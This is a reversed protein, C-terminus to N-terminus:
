FLEFELVLLIVILISYLKTHRITSTSGKKDDALGISTKIGIFSLTSSMGTGTDKIAHLRTSTSLTITETASTTLSDAATTPRAISHVFWTLRISQDGVFLSSGDRAVSMTTGTYVATKGEMDIGTSAGIVISSGPRITKHAFIVPGSGDIAFVLTSGSVATNSLSSSFQGGMSAPLLIVTSTGDLVIKTAAPDLYLSTGDVIIASGPYLTQGEILIRGAWDETYGKSNFYFTLPRSTPAAAVTFPGISALAITSTGDVFAVVGYPDMLIKMDEAM